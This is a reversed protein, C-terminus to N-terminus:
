LIYQCALVTYHFGQSMCVHMRAVAFSNVEAALFRYLAYLLEVIKLATIGSSAAVYVCCRM